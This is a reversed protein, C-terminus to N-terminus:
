TSSFYTTKYNGSFQPSFDFVTFYYMTLLLNHMSYPHNKCEPGVSTGFLLFLFTNLSIIVFNNLHSFASFSPVSALLQLESLLNM